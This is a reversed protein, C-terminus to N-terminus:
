LQAAVEPALEVFIQPVEAHEKGTGSFYGTGNNLSNMSAEEIVHRTPEHVTENLLEAGTKVASAAM